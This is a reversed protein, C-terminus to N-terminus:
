GSRDTEAKTAARQDATTARVDSAKADARSDAASAAEKKAVTADSQMFEPVLKETLTPQEPQVESHDGAEGTAMDIMAANSAVDDGILAV